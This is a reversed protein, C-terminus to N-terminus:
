LINVERLLYEFAEILSLGGRDANWGPPIWDAAWGRTFKNAELAATMQNETFTYM